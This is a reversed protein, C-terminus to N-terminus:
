AVSARYSRTCAFARSAVPLSSKSPTGRHVPVRGVRSRRQVLRKRAAEEKQKGALALRGDGRLRLALDCREYAAADNSLMREASAARLADPRPPKPAGDHDDAARRTSTHVEVPSIAVHRAATRRPYVQRVGKEGGPTLAHVLSGAWFDGDRAIKSGSPRLCMGHPTSARETAEQARHGWVEPDVADECFAGIRHGGSRTRAHERSSGSAKAAEVPSLSTHLQRPTHVPSNPTPPHSYRKPTPPRRHAPFPRCVHQLYRGDEYGSWARERDREIEIERRLEGFARDSPRHQEGCM